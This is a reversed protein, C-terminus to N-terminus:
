AQSTNNPKITAFFMTRGFFDLRPPFSMHDNHLLDSEISFSRVFRGRVGRRSPSAKRAHALLAARGTQLAPCVLGLDRADLVEGTVLMAVHAANGEGLARRVLLDGPRLEGEIPSRPTAVVEFLRELRRRAGDLGPYAFADFTAAPSILDTASLPSATGAVGVRSLVEYLLAEPSRDAAGAHIAEDALEVLRGDSRKVM